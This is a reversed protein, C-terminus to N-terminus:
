LVRKRCSQVLGMFVGLLDSIAEGWLAGPIEEVVQHPPRQPQAERAPVGPVPPLMACGCVSRVAEASSADASCTLGLVVCGPSQLCKRHVKTAQLVWLPFEFESCRNMLLPLRKPTCHASFQPNLCLEFAQTMNCYRTYVGGLLICSLCYRLALNAGLTGGGKLWAVRAM